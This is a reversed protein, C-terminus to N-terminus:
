QGGCRLLYGLWFVLYQGGEYNLKWTSDKYCFDALLLIGPLSFCYGLIILLTASVRKGRGAHFM